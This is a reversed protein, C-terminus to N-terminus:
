DPLKRKPLGTSREAAEFFHDVVGQMYERQEPSLMPGSLEIYSQYIASAAYLVPAAVLDQHRFVEADPVPEPFTTLVDVLAQNDEAGLERVFDDWEEVKFVVYKESM